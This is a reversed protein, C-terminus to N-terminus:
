SNYILAIEYVCRFYIDHIQTIYLSIIVQLEGNRYSKIGIVEETRLGVHFLILHNFISRYEIIAKHWLLDFGKFLDGFVSCMIVHNELALCINHYSEISQITDDIM